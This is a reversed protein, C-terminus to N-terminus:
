WSKSTKERESESVRVEYDPERRFSKAASLKQWILKWVTTLVIKM